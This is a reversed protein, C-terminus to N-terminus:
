ILYKLRTKYRLRVISLLILYRISVHEAGFINDTIKLSTGSEVEVVFALTNDDTNVVLDGASATNGFASLGTLSPDVLKNTSVASEKTGSIRETDYFFLKNLLYLDSPKDYVHGDTANGLPALTSFIEIVQRKREAIDAYDQNSAVSTLILITIM